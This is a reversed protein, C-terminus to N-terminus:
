MTFGLSAKAVHSGTAAQHHHQVGEIEAGLSASAPLDLRTKLLLELVALAVCLFGTDFWVLGFWVLGFWVLGFWVLGSPFVLGFFGLCFWFDTEL